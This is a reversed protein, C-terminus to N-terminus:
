RDSIKLAQITISSFLLPLALVGPITLQSEWYDGESGKLM